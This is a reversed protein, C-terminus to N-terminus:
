KNEIKKMSKRYERVIIRAVWALEHDSMNEIDVDDFRRMAYFANQGNMNAEMDESEKDFSENKNKLLSKLELKIRKATEGKWQSSNALFYGVISRADDAGYKDNINELSFMAQLYPKAAYNVNKWDRSIESAIDHLNRREINEKVYDKFSM